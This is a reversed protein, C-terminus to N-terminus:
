SCCLRALSFLFSVFLPVMFYDLRAHETNVVFYRYQYGRMVNTYKTLAGELKFSSLNLEKM